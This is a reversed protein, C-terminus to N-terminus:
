KFREWFIRMFILGAVIGVCCVLLGLIMNTVNIRSSVTQLELELGTLYPGIEEITM